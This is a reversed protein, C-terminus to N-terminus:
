GEAESGIPLGWTSLYWRWKPIAHFPRTGAQEDRVPRGMSMQLTITRAEQGNSPCRWNRGNTIDCYELKGSPESGGVTWFVVERHPRLARFRYRDGALLRGTCRDGEWQGDCQATYVTREGDPTIFDNGWALTGVLALAAVVAVAYRVERGRRVNRAGAPPAEVADVGARRATDAAPGPPLQEIQEPMQALLQERRRYMARRKAPVEDLGRAVRTCPLSWSGDRQLRGGLESWFGRYDFAVHLTRHHWKKKPHHRPDIGAAQLGWRRCLVRLVEFLLHAPRLGEAERTLLRIAALAAEDHLGPGQVAGVVLRDPKLFSFSMHCVRAGEPTVLHLAWLGERMSVTNLGLTVLAQGNLRWVPVREGQAIRHCVAPGFIRTAAELDHRLHTMRRAAGYRRDVFAQVIPEFSKFGNAFVPRWHPLAQLTAEFVRRYPWSALLGLGLKLQRGINSRRAHTLGRMEALTPWRLPASAPSAADFAWPADAAAGDRPDMIKEEL